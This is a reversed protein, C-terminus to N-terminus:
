NQLENNVDQSWGYDNLVAFHGLSHIFSGMHNKKKQRDERYGFSKQSGGCDEFKIGSMQVPSELVREYKDEVM